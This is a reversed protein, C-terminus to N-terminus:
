QFLHNQLHEVVLVRERFLHVIDVQVAVLVMLPLVEEVV